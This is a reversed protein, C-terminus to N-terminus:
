TTFIKKKPVWIKRSTSFTEGPIGVLYKDGKKKLITVIVVKKIFRENIIASENKNKLRFVVNKEGSFMGDGVYGCELLGKRKM